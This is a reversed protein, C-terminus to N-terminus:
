KVPSFILGSMIYSEGDNQLDKNPDFLDVRAFVDMREMAKFNAYASIINDNINSGYINNLDYEAGLRFLENSFGGFASFVISSESLELRGDTKTRGVDSTFKYKLTKAFEKEYTFYIRQFEFENNVALNEATNFTYDYFVLGSIKENSQASITSFIVYFAMVAFIATLNKM